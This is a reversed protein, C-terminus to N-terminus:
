MAEGERDFDAALLVRNAESADKKLQAITKGKGRITVYKPVFEEGITVGMEKKPLDRVHGGSARVIYGSGLFKNITRAKAPSEVIVLDKDKAM